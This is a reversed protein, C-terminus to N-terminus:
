IKFFRRTYYIIIDLRIIRIKHIIIINYYQITDVVFRHFYLEDFNFFFM